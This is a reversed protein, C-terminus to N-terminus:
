ALLKTVVNGPSTPSASTAARSATPSSRTTSASCTCSRRTCTTCTSRTRSRRQLRARRDRRRAVGPKIGGGALWMTFARPHHDRGLFKSGNRAENMPTRGFEGGWVVLTEDLLGRQKSTRSAARRDAQDIERCLKPLSNSSTTAPAPATTTGAATTSSCSACAASSWAARSCATTPSRRRARSPATCSTSRRPSAALPGDARAREDAHPLGARLRRHADAIEPDGIESSAASTSRACRTSRTAGRTARRRGAPRHPLAGPRGRQPVRRGPLRDAPLRQGLLEQRRRPQERRLDARRLRAPRPERQRPRLDAVLGDAPRGVVQHGTNMFIQAPAHNFQTPTCRASSPSTTPSRRSTRCCSRSRSARSGTGARVRVPSGLLRPTGKIFAFREGKVLEEPIPQGDHQKCRAAQPRVPRAALARRGHVPLHRAQGEARLAAASPAAPGPEGAASPSCGSTSRPAAPRAVGIGFGSQASSTAARSGAAPAPSTADRITM